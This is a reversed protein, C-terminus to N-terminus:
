SFYTVIYIIKNENAEWKKVIIILTVKANIKEYAGEIRM